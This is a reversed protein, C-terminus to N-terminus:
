RGQNHNIVAAVARRGNASIPIAMLKDWDYLGTHVIELQAARPGWARPRFRIVVSASEGPDLTQPFRGMVAFDRSNAGTIRASRVWMKYNGENALTVRRQVPAAGVWAPPIRLLGAEVSIKRGFQDYLVAKPAALFVPVWGFTRKQFGKSGPLYYIKSNPHPNGFPTLGIRPANGHFLFEQRPNTAEWNSFADTGIFVCSSPFSAKVVGSSFFAKAGVTRCGEGLRVVKLRKCFSFSENGINAPGLFRISQIGSRWFARDEIATVTSPITVATLATSNALCDAGISQLGERMVLNTLNFCSEFAFPPLRRVGSGITVRKLNNSYAFASAQLVPNEASIDLEEVGSGALVQHGVVVNPSAITLKTLSACNNFAGSGIEELQMPLNLEVLAACGHFASSGIKKLQDPLKVEVLSVCDSFANNGILLVSEPLHISTLDRCGSFAGYHIEVVPLDNHTAPVVLTGSASEQCHFVM